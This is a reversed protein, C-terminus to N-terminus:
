LIVMTYILFNFKIIKQRVNGQSQLRKPLLRFSNDIINNVHNISISNIDTNLRKILLYRSFLKASSVDNLIPIIQYTTLDLLKIYHSHQLIVVSNTKQSRSFL